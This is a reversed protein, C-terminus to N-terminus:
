EKKGALKERRDILLNAIPLRDESTVGCNNRLAREADWRKDMVAIDTSAIIWAKAYAAYQTPNKPPQDAPPTEDSKAPAKSEEAKGKKAKDKKGGAKPEDTVIADGEIM